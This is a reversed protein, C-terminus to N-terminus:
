LDLITQDWKQNDKKYSNFLRRIEFFMFATFELNYIKEDILNKYYEIDSNSLTNNDIKSQITNLLQEEKCSLIM